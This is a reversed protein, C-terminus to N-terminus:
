SQRGGGDNKSRLREVVAGITEAASRLEVAAVADDDEIVASSLYELRGQIEALTRMLVQSTGDPLM